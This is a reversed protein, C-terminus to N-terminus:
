SLWEAIGFGERGFQNGCYILLFRGDLEFLQSSFQMESDWDSGGPFFGIKADDRQWTLMDSSWAHGLSISVQDAGLGLPMHYGFVAHWRGDRHVPMFIDQCEFKHMAPVILKGNREWKIGDLSTAHAIQYVSEPQGDNPLWKLGTQYWMHWVFDIIKVTPSNAFYPEKFTLGLVPGEAVKEFKTGGDRSIALGINVIHPVSSMLTWGAYYMYVLNSARLISGPIIGFEDFSGTGGLPLLPQKAINIVELLNHRNLDVYAPYSAYMLDSDKSPRTAFYVRLVNDNLIFPTPYQAYERMWIGSDLKTPDFVKGLKKWNTQTM